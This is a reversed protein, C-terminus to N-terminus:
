EEILQRTLFDFIAKEDIEKVVESVGIDRLLIFTIKESSAKKDKKMKEILQLATAPFPLKISIGLTRFHSSIKDAVPTKCIGVEESFRTAWYLGVAVAEGHLLRGDYGGIAELAHAFTHGLNLLARTGNTEKEDRAVINAKIECCKEIAYRQAQADGNLISIGNKDLWDFFSVDQILAYKLIEAYGARLERAPLTKLTETDILVIHPQYFSGVLNKGQNTNISTKGGVSSDVQSLLTTPIQVMPVGRMLISAAFGTIDGIVGGGLAILATSRDLGSALATDVINELCQFNKTKEGEPLVIPDLLSFGSTRLSRELPELYLPGTRHDTIVLAKKAPLVPLLYRGAQSLINKGVIIDYPLANKKLALTPETM